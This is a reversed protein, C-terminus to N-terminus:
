KFCGLDSCEAMIERFLREKKEQLTMKIGGKKEKKTELIRCRAAPNGNASFASEATVRVSAGM